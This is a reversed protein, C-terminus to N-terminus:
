LKSEQYLKERYRCDAVARQLDDMRNEEVLIRVLRAMREEGENRGQEIGQKVGQKMGQKM